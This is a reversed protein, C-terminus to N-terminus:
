ETTTEETTEEEPQTYTVKEKVYITLTSIQDLITDVHEKQSSFKYNDLDIVEKNTAKDIFKVKLGNSSAYSKIKDLSYSSLITCNANFFINSAIYSGFNWTM